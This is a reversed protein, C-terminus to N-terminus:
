LNNLQLTHFYQLSTQQNDQMLLLIQKKKNKQVELFARQVELAVGNATNELNEKKTAVNKKNATVNSM